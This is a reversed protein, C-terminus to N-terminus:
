NPKSKKKRSLRPLKKIIKWEVKWGWDDNGEIHYRNYDPKSLFGQRSDLWRVTITLQEGTEINELLVRDNEKYHQIPKGKYQM